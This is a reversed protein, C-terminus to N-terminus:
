FIKKTATIVMLLAHNWSISSAFLGKSNHFSPAAMDSVIISGLLSWHFCIVHCLYHLYLPLLAVILDECKQSIWCHQDTTLWHHKLIAQRDWRWPDLLESSSGQLHSRCAMKFCGYSVFLLHHRLDWVLSSRM